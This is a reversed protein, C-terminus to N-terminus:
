PDAPVLNLMEAFSEDHKVEEDDVLLNFEIYLSPLLYVISELVYHVIRM